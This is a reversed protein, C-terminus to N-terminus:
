FICFLYIEVAGAEGFRPDRKLTNGAQKRTGNIRFICSVDMVFNENYCLHFSFKTMTLEM